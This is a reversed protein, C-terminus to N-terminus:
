SPDGDGVSYYAPQAGSGTRVKQLLCFDKVGVTIPFGTRGASEFVLVVRSSRIVNGTTWDKFENLSASYAIPRVVFKCLASVWRQRCIRCDYKWVLNCKWHIVMFNARWLTESISYMLIIEPVIQLYIVSTRECLNVSGPWITQCASGDFQCSFM